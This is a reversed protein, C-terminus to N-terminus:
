LSQAQNGVLLGDYLHPVNDSLLWDLMELASKSAKESGSFYIDFTGKSDRFILESIKDTDSKEDHRDMMWHLTYAWVGDDDVKDQDSAVPMDFVAMLRYLLLQSSILTEPRCYKPIQHRNRRDAIVRLGSPTKYLDGSCWTVSDDDALENESYPHPTAWERRFRDRIGYANAFGDIESFHAMGITRRIRGCNPLRRDAAPLRLFAAFEWWLDRFVNRQTEKDWNDYEFLPDKGPSQYEALILNQLTIRRPEASSSKGAAQHNTAM